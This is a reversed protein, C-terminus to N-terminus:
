PKMGVFLIEPIFTGSAFRPQTSRRDVRVRNQETRQQQKTKKENRTSRVPERECRSLRNVRDAQICLLKSPDEVCPQRTNENRLSAFSDVAEFHATERVGAIPLRRSTRNGNRHLQDFSTLEPGKPGSRSVLATPTWQRSTHAGGTRGGTGIEVRHFSSGNFSRVPDFAGEVAYYTRRSRNKGYCLLVNTEDCVFEVFVATLERIRKNAHSM